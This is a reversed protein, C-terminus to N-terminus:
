MLVEVSTVVALFVVVGVPVVSLRVEVPVVRACRVVVGLLVVVGLSQAPRAM